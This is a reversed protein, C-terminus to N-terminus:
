ALSLSGGLSKNRNLTNKLVGVLKTGQIEFEYTGGSGGSNSYSTSSGRNSSSSSAGYSSSDTGNSSSQLAGGVGKLLVGGAIAAFGAGVGAITGFLKVVTGALVAATGMQILQDGMTSLLGGLGSVIASTAARLVDGGNALADGIADGMSMFTGAISDQIIEKAAANFDTLKSLLVPFKEDMAAQMGGLTRSLYDEHSDEGMSASESSGGSFISSKIENWKDSIYNSISGLSKNVDDETIFEIKESKKAKDYGEKVSKALTKGLGDGSENYLDGLDQFGKTTSDLVQKLGSKLEKLDLTFVGKIISGIGKFTDVMNGALDKIYDWIASLTAKASTWLNKFVAVISEVVIRFGLSENYLDIFYNATDVLAKNVVDWNNTVVYALGALAAVALGIPSLLAGLVTIMGGFLTIIAPLAIGLAAVSLVIAKTNSSLGKFGNVIENSLKVLKTFAPLVLQGFSVALEKLSEQFIRMQNASGGSTRAFDGQANTTKALIYQYRLQVKEAQTMKKINKTIGQEMAFQKLNVETMVIGLMKLSETEGTFVGNLATTVEKINMNKFSALDGALGVLSTSLKSAEVTNIGMSTSMDGFLAAMDLASGEAIGFNTLTTKAFKRVENSSSKFAVDVKNLSEEFDSAMKIAGGGALLLPLTVYTSLSKGFSMMGQGTSKLKSSFQTMKGEFGKLGKKAKNLEKLLDDINAGIRVELDENAM